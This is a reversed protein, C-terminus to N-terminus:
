DHRYYLYWENALAKYLPAPDGRKDTQKDDLSDCLPAPSNGVAYAYGKEDGRVASHQRTSTTFFIIKGSPTDSKTWSSLGLQRLLHRHAALRMDSIDGATGLRTERQEADVFVEFGDPTIRWVRADEEAMRALNDFSTRRERFMKEMEADTTHSSVTCGLNLLLLFPLRLSASLRQRANM